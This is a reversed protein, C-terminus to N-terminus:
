IRSQDQADFWRYTRSLGERLQTTPTWGLDTRTKHVALVSHRIDGCRTPRMTPPQDYGSIEALLGYLDNVSTAVGTGINVTTSGTRGSM